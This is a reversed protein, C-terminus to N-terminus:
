LGIITNKWQKMKILDLSDDEQIAKFLSSGMADRDQGTNVITERVVRATEFYHDFNTKTSVKHRLNNVLWDVQQEVSPHGEEWTAGKKDIFTYYKEKSNQTLWPEISPLWKDKLDEFLPKKYIRLEPFMEWLANKDRNIDEINSTIGTADSHLTEIDRMATMYWVCNIKKLLTTVAIMANLTHIMYSEENFFIDHWQKTFLDCNLPGYVSGSTQWGHLKPRGIFELSTPMHWDHRIHSSWQIIVVDDKTFKHRAHAEMVREMIARNGVGPFGYNYSEEFDHALLDAWTPWVYKTFSCGFAFFRSM